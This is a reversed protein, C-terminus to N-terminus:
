RQFIGKRVIYIFFPTGLLATVVGVPAEEPMIIYRAGIDALVLMIGGTLASFPVIWRHDSGVLYRAFHPVVIGIFSIPGAIAVSGGALLIVMLAAAFKFIVTKQGLSVAVDEGLAFANLQRSLLISIVWAILLAPMVAALMSLKRGEVSGALWFLVEDLAKENTVLMGQTLSAFLAAIVAGALTLKVPTLGGRGASGLAYALGSAVAAGLFGIWMFQQISTIGLFTVGFVIFFGAGANVGFIDPSAIPNRTLAQMLVGAIGLSIGVAMGVLARPVRSLQIILHENSGDFATYAEIAMSLSTDTYGLVVSMVMVVLSFIVGLILAATRLLNSQLIGNM